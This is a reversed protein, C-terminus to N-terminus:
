NTEKRYRAVKKLIIAVQDILEKKEEPNLNQHDFRSRYHLQLAQTLAAPSVIEALSGEIREIWGQMTEWPHRRFGLENLKKEIRNFETRHEPQDDAIKKRGTQLTIRQLKKRSYIRRILIIGLPLLLILSYNKWAGSAMGWRWKSFAFVAYSFMDSIINLRSMREEETTIWASPTPDFNSWKGNKYVLAWAHAHRSRVIIRNEIASYEHALFGKAYRAPIGCARLVLVAATAFYECHGSRSFLLFHSVPSRDADQDDLDLTYTFKEQFVAHLM